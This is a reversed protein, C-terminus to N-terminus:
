GSKQGEIRRIVVALTIIFVFSILALVWGSLLQSTSEQNLAIIGSSHLYFYTVVITNHIFHALVPLWINGSWFMLYGFLLGLFFRPIFGYFQGHVASFVIATLVIAMTTNKSINFFIKQFVGRFIFEEGIAPIIAIMLLNVIYTSFNDAILFQQTLSQAANEMQKLRTELSSLYDPFGITKNYEVLFNIFPVALLILAFVVLVSALYPKRRISFYPKEPTSFLWQLFFGPILFFGVSQVIQYYKLQGTSLNSTAGHLLQNSTEVDICFFIRSLLFGLFWVIIGITVMTLLTITLKLLPTASNFNLFPM